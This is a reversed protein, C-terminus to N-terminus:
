SSCQDRYGLPLRAAKAQEESATLSSAMEVVSLSPIQRSDRLTAYSEAVCILKKVVQKYIRQIPVGGTKIM